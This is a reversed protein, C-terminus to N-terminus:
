SLNGVIGSKSVHLAIVDCLHVDDMRLLHGVSQHFEDAAEEGGMRARFFPNANQFLELPMSSQFNFIFFRLRFPQVEQKKASASVM